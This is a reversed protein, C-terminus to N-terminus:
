NKTLVGTQRLMNVHEVQIGGLIERPSPQRNNNKTSWKNGLYNYADKNAEQKLISEQTIPASYRTDETRNRGRTHRQVRQIARYDAEFDPNASSFVIMRKFCCTEVGLNIM